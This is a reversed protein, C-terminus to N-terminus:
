ASRLLLLHHARLKGLHLKAQAPLPLHSIPLSSLFPLRQALTHSPAQSWRSLPCYCVQRGLTPQPDGVANHTVKTLMFVPQIPVYSFVTTRADKGKKFQTKLSETDINQSSLRKQNIQNMSTKAPKIIRAHHSWRYILTNPFPLTLGLIHIFPLATQPLPHYLFCINLFHLLIFQLKIPLNQIPSCQPM